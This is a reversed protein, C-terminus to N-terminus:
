IEDLSQEEVIKGDSLFLIRKCLKAIKLNHTVIIFTFKYESHLSLLLKIIEMGTKSDINGTPEDALLISPEGILARAIAIRQQEGGSLEGPLHNLRNALKMKNLLETALKSRIKAKVGRIKLPLVVNQLANLHQQLRFNQFIFGINKNRYVAREDDSLTSLKQGYVSITGSTPLELGGILYLLTSKGSGSPGFVSVTEGDKISIDIGDLAHILSNGMKYCQKIKHLEIM